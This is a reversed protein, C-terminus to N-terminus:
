RISNHEHNETCNRSASSVADFGACFLHLSSTGIQVNQKKLTHLDVQPQLLAIQRSLMLQLMRRPRPNMRLAQPNQMQCLTVKPSIPTPGTPPAPSQVM